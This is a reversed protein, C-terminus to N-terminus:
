RGSVAGASSQDTPRHYRVAILIGATQGSGILALGLLTLSVANPAIPDIAVLLGGVVTVVAAGRYSQRATTVRRGTMWLAGGPLLAWGLITLRSLIPSPPSQVLAVIGIGTIGLGAVIVFWWIRLLGASMDDAALGAFALLIGAMVLHGILTARISLAGTHAAIAFVWALPVFLAPATARLRRFM